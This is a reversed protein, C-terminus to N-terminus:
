SNLQIVQDAYQYFHPDNTSVILTKGKSLELILETIRQIGEADLEAFPEDLIIVSKDGILARLLIIKKWFTRNLRRTTLDTDPSGRRFEEIIGARECLKTLEEMSIDERGVLINEFVDGSFIEQHGLSLGIRSRLHDLDLKDHPIGNFYITGQDPLFLTSLFKLLTTKGKGNAGTIVVKQGPQINLNYNTFLPHHAEYSFTLDQVKIGLPGQSPIFGQEPQFEKPEPTLTELKDFSSLTDYVSDLNLILKEVSNIMTIIIIEAAVFQGINLQQNILLYSGLILMSAAILLKLAILNKYQFLLIRFHKTRYSLYNGVREDLVQDQWQHSVNMKFAPICKAVYNLWTTVQYKSTSEKISTYLAEKSSLYFIALIILLFIFVMILFLPHYIAVICLGLIIQMSALPIDLLIKTLSKQLTTIDLFRNMWEPYAASKLSALNLSLLLQSFKFAYHLFLKQQIREIVNMQMIQLVGTLFIGLLILSILVVMSISFTGAQVFGIISQIGLPLSLQIIGSFIALSYITYLDKKELLKLKRFQNLPM